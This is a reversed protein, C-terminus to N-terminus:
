YITITGVRYIYLSLVIFKYCRIGQHEDNTDKNIESKIPRTLGNDIFFPDYLIKESSPRDKPEMKIMSDILKLAVCDNSYSDKLHELSLFKPKLKNKIRFPREVEDGFPHHKEKSLTYGFICGLPFVDVRFDYRRDKDYLEPAIWGGNGRPNTKNKTSFDVQESQLVKSMDFDAIKMQPGNLGGCNDPTFILINTPKIDRHIINKSHLYALGKTVQHLMERENMGIEPGRYTGEVWEYLTGACL